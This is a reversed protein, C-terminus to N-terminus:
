PKFCFAFILISLNVLYSVQPLIIQLLSGKSLLFIHGVDLAVKLILERPELDEEDDGDDYEDNDADDTDDNDGNHIKYMLYNQAVYLNLIPM